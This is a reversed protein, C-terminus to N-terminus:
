ISHDLSGRRVKSIKGTTHWCLSNLKIVKDLQNIKIQANDNGYVVM